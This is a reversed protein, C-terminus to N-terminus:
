LSRNTDLTVDQSKLKYGIFGIDAGQSKDYIVAFWDKVALLSAGTFTQIKDQIVIKPAPSLYKGNLSLNELVLANSQLNRLYSTEYLLLFGTADTWSLSPNLQDQAYIRNLRTMKTIPKMWRDFVQGLIDFDNGAEYFTQFAIMCTGGDSCTSSLKAIKTRIVAVPIESVNILKINRTLYGAYALSSFDSKNQVLWYVLIGMTKNLTVEFDQINQVDTTTAVPLEWGQALSKDKYKFISMDLPAFSDQPKMALNNQDYIRSLLIDKEGRNESWFVAYNGSKQDLPTASVKLISPSSSIIRSFIFKKTNIDYKAICLTKRSDTQESWGLLLINKTLLNITPNKYSVKEISGSPFCSVIDTSFVLKNSMDRHALKIFDTDYEEHVEWLADELAVYKANRQVNAETYGNPPGFVSSILFSTNTGAFSFFTTYVLYVLVCSLM